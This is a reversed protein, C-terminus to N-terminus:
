GVEIPLRRVPKGTAVAVANAVAPAIPPVAQEGVGHPSETSEVIHVEVRPMENMRLVPYDHFNSQKVRGGELTIAGKLAASLGYVIGSEMQAVVTDPNVVLGCDVACVVRHVQIGAGGVSVEAVQAVITDSFLKHTAIGRYRGTPPPRDWGAKEAALELVKLHRPAGALLERRLEFPDRGSARALEDVFSENAFCNQSAYVSRWYGVPVPTTIPCYEVRLNPFAYPLDSAGDLAQEAIGAPDSRMLDPARWGSISPGVVRHLWAIVKGSPDLGARLLHYSAPRYADHQMDHERTWVVQVPRGIAKSVRVADIVFDAELRRGFGGGLLTTHVIVAEPPLETLREAVRRATTQTQTPAWIECRGPRVDAICNMPEMTAHALFPLEYTAEIVRAARELALPADGENRGASGAQAARDRFMRFLRESDLEADPGQEWSCELARCGQIAAWTSDAVVAVCGALRFIRGSEFKIEGRPLPVIERVGPVAKAKTADFATIDRGFVPCRAICAHLMGSVRTDLGYRASGDVKAPSDLRATKRGVIRFTTPDKLKPTEPVRLAAAVPVLEGYTARRQSAPHVVVANEARCEAAPVGWVRAAAGILMERAQAAGTRLPEWLGSISSSGATGQPGFKPDATAQEVTISGLDVELEEAVIMPIATHVGQGMESKTLWVTITGEPSIQLFVSPSLVTGTKRAGLGAGAFAPLHVSIVLGSLALGTRTVFERRSLDASTTM